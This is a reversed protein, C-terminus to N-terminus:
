PERPGPSASSERHEVAPAPALARRALDFTREFPGSADLRQWDMPGIEYGLQRAVVAADADSADGKRAGVRAALLAPPAELWFGDFAVGAERALAAVAAREEPRAHVADVVASGGAALVRRAKALLVGYVRATTEPTYAESPLRVEDAVAFLRKREVDSRLHVAGPAAGLLPALRAALTSKGTGSLGGVALLRPPSRAICRGATTLYRAARDFDAARGAGEVGRTRDLAVMARIGARVAMLTPLAAVGDLEAEPMRRLWGGFLANAAEPLDSHWLDMLLFALDYLVDITALDEDFELADFPLPRGQWLVINAAHLDGHCRRVHGDALRRAFLPALEALRSRAEELFTRAAERFDAGAVDATTRELGDLASALAAPWRAKRHVPAERHLGAVMEALAEVLPADLEGRRVVEGLVDREPFRRMVLMWEAIDDGEDKGDGIGAGQTNTALRLTGDARRYIPELRLYIDPAARRDLELERELAARRRELSGFDLYGLRVPRKMKYAHAGALVVVAAHTRVIRLELAAKGLGAVAAERQVLLEAVAEPSLALPEIATPSTMTIVAHEDKASRLGPQEDGSTADRALM